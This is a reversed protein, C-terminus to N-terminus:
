THSSFVALSESPRHWMWIILRQKEWKICDRSVWVCVHNVRRDEETQRPCVQLRTGARVSTLGSPETKICRVCKIYLKMNCSLYWLHSWIDSDRQLARHCHSPLFRWWIWALSFCGLPLLLVFFDRFVLLVFSFEELTISARLFVEAWRGFTRCIEFVDCM